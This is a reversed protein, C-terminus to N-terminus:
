SLLLSFLNCVYTCVLAYYLLLLLLRLRLYRYFHWLNRLIHRSHQEGRALVRRGAPLRSVQDARRALLAGVAVIRVRPTRRRVAVVLPELELEVLGHEHAAEVDVLVEVAAGHALDLGVSRVGAGVLEDPARVHRAGVIVVVDERGRERGSEEDATAHAESERQAITLAKRLDLRHLENAGRQVHVHRRRADLLVHRLEHAVVVVRVHADVDLADYARAAALLEILRELEVAAYEVHAAYVEEVEQAVVLVLEGRDVVELELEDGLEDVGVREVVLEDLLDDGMRAGGLEAGGVGVVVEVGVLAQEGRGRGGLVIVVVVVVVVILVVLVVLVFFIVLLVFSSRSARGHALLLYEVVVLRHLGQAQRRWRRGVVPQQREVLEYAIRIAKVELAQGLHQGVIHEHAKQTHLVREGNEHVGVLAHVRAGHVVLHREVDLELEVLDVGHHEGVHAQVDLLDDLRWAKGGQGLVGDNADHRCQSRVGM